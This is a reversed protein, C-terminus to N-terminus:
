LNSLLQSIRESGQRVYQIHKDRMQKYVSRRSVGVEDAISEITRDGLLKEIEYSTKNYHQRLAIVLAAILNVTRCRPQDDAVLRFYQKFTKRPTALEALADAATSFVPGTMELVNGDATHNVTGVVAACRIRVPQLNRAIEEYVAFASAPTALAGEFSDGGFVTFKGVLQGSRNFRRNIRNLTKKLTAVVDPLNDLKQSKIIDGIIVCTQM